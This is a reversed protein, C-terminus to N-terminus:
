EEQMDRLTGDETIGTCRQFRRHQDDARVLKLSREFNPWRELTTRPVGLQQAIRKRNAGFEELLRIAHPELEARRSRRPIPPATLPPPPPPTTPPPQMARVVEKLQAVEQRTLQLEAILTSVADLLEKPNPHGM